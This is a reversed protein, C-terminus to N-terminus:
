IQRMKVTLVVEETETGSWRVQVLADASITFPSGITYSKVADATVSVSGIQSGDGYFIIAGSQEDGSKQSLTIQEVSYDAGLGLGQGNKTEVEGIRLYKNDQCKGKRNFIIYDFIKADLAAEAATARTEEASIATANAQEAARATAAEDSIATTLVGEAATARATETAIDTANNGAALTNAAILVANAAVDTEIGGIQLAQAAIATVNAAIAIVNADIAAGNAVNALTNNAILTADTALQADNGAIAIVNAAVDAETNSIALANAAVSVTLAALETDNNSQGLALTAISAANTGINAANNAVEVNVEALIMAKIASIDVRKSSGEPSQTTDSKDVIHIFDDAAVAQALPTLESFKQTTNHSM